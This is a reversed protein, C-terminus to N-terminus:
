TGAVAWAFAYTVRDNTVDGHNKIGGGSGDVNHIVDSAFAYPDGVQHLPLTRAEDTRQTGNRGIGGYQDDKDGIAKVNDGALRSSLAYAVGVVTDQYSFTSLFPGRVAKRAVVDRFFGPSGKGNNASFGYHSFAAELLTVSDPRVHPAVTLAKTCAAMCRGGLSHGVLHVRLNPQAGKLARVLPAVGVAGVTGARNKMMYWTTMNLFQGVRGAVSKFFGGVFLPQGETSLGGGGGISMVGGDDGDRSTPLIIPTGLKALLDAGDQAKLEALGETPDPEGEDVLSLMLAVFENQADTDDELKSLLTLAKTVIAQQDPAALDDRMRTLQARAANLEDDADGLGQVSGGDSAAGESFAKSPWFIGGVAFTRSALRDKLEARSLHAHVNEFFDRYLHLAERADNRFGHAILVVDTTGATAVHQLLTAQPAASTPKGDDDFNLAIFDFGSLQDM